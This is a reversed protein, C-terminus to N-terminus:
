ILLQCSFYYFCFNLAGDFGLNGVSPFLKRIANMNEQMVMVLIKGNQPLPIQVQISREDSPAICLCKDSCGPASPCNATPLPVGQQGSSLTSGPKERKVQARASHTLKSEFKSGPFSLKSDDWATTGPQASSCSRSSLGAQIECVAAAIM